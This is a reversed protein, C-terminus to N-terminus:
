GADRAGKRDLLADLLLSGLYVTVMTVGLWCSRDEPWVHGWVTTLALLWLTARGVRAGVKCWWEHNERAVKEEPTEALAGTLQLM